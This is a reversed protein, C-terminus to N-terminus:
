YKERKLDDTLRSDEKGTEDDLFILDNILWSGKNKVLEIKYGHIFYGECVKPQYFSVKVTTVNKRTTVTGIRLINKINKDNRYCEELPVFPLGEGFFPKNTPYEKLYEAERKLEYQLLQNLKPTFWKKHADVEEAFSTNSLSRHFKYFEQVFEKPSQKQALINVSFM